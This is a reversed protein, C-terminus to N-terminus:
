YAVTMTIQTTVTFVIVAAECADFFINM